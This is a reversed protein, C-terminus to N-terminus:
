CSRQSERSTKAMRSTQVEDISGTEAAPPRRWPSLWELLQNAPGGTLTLYGGTRGLPRGKAGRGFVAIADIDERGGQAKKLIAVLADDVKLGTAGEGRALFCDDFLLCIDRGFGDWWTTGPPLRAIDGVVQLRKAGAETALDRIWAGGERHEDSILQYALPRGGPGDVPKVHLPSALDERMKRFKDARLSRYAHGFSMAERLRGAWVIKRVNGGGLANFGVFHIEDEVVTHDVGPKLLRQRLAARLHKKCPGFFVENGSLAWPVGCEVQDPNPSAGLIYMYVTAM